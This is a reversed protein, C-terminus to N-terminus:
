ECDHLGNEDHGACSAHDPIHRRPQNRARRELHFFPAKRHVRKKASAPTTSSFTWASFNVAFRWSFAKSRTPIACTATHWFSKSETVSCNEALKKLSKENRAALILNCGQEALANALALGIGRSSGTILAVQNKLPKTRKQMKALAIKDCQGRSLAVCRGTPM